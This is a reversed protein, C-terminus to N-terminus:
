VREGYGSPTGMTAENVIWSETPQDLPLDTTDVIWFPLGSPVSMLGIQYITLGTNPAPAVIAAGAEGAYIIVQM